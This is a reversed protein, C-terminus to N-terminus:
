TNKYKFYKQFYKPNVTGSFNAVVRIKMNGIKNTKEENWSM